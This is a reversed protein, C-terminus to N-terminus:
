RKRTGVSTPTEREWAGAHSHLSITVSYANGREPAHSRSSPRLHKLAQIGAKAPIVFSATELEVVAEKGM